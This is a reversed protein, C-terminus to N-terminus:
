SGDKEPEEPKYGLTERFSEPQAGFREEPSLSDWFKKLSAKRGFKM